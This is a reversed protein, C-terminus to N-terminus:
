KVCVGEGTALFKPLKTNASSRIKVLEGNAKGDICDAIYYDYYDLEKMQKWCWATNHFFPHEFGKLYPCNRRCLKSEKDFIAEKM